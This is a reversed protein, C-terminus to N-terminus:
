FGFIHIFDIIYNSISTTIQGPFWLFTDEVHTANTTDHQIRFLKGFEHTAFVLISVEDVHMFCLPWLKMKLNLNWNSWQKMDFDGNNQKLEWNHVPQHNPNEKSKWINRIIMGVSKIKKLPTQKVVLWTIIYGDNVRYYGDYNAM